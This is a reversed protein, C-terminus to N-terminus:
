RAAARYFTHARHASAGGIALAGTSMSALRGATRAEQVKAALRRAIRQGSGEGLISDAVDAVQDIGRAGHLVDLDSALKRLWRYLAREREPHGVFRDAFNEEDNM